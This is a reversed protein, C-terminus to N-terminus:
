GGRGESGDSDRGDRKEEVVRQVVAPSPPSPSAWIPLDTGHGTRRPTVHQHGDRRATGVVRGVRLRATRKALPTEDEEERERLTDDDCEDAACKSM